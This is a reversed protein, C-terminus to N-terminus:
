GDGATSHGDDASPRAPSQPGAGGPGPRGRRRAPSAAGSPYPHLGTNNAVAPSHGVQLEPQASIEDLTATRDSETAPPPAISRLRSRSNLSEISAFARIAVAVDRLGATGGTRIVVFACFVLYLAFGVLAIAASGLVAAVVLVAM